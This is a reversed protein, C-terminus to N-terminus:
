RDPADRGELLPHAALYRRGDRIGGYLARLPASPWLFQGKGGQLLIELSVALSAKRWTSRLPEDLHKAAYILRNRINYYYYTESKARGRVREVHTGGSDHIAAAGHDIFLRGGAELVRQSFDVDEWYLFYDDDYGGTARWLQASITFCAGSVWERYEGPPRDGRHRPHSMRGDALLLDSGSFWMRGDSRWIVPAVLVSSDLRVRSVLRHMDTAAISADPNLVLLISRGADLAAQAGANVGTGFGGNTASLVISWGHRACLESVRVQEIRSSFNDVVVVLASPAGQAVPALNVELLKSSGFNVVIIATDEFTPPPDAM